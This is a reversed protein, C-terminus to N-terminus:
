IAVIARHYIMDFSVLRLMCAAQHKLRSPKTKVTLGKVYRRFYPPTVVSRYMYAGIILRPQDSLRASQTITRPMRAATVSQDHAAHQPASEM